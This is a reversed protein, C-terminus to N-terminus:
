SLLRVERRMVRLAEAPLVIPDLTPLRRRAEEEAMQDLIIKWRPEGAHYARMM